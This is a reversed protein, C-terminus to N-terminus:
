LNRYDYMFNEVVEELHILSLNENNCTDVLFKIQEIESTVDQIEKVTKGSIVVYIGYTAISKGDFEKQENLIFYSEM